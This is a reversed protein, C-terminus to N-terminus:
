ENMVQFVTCENDSHGYLMAGCKECSHEKNFKPDTCYYYKWWKVAASAEAKSSLLVKPHKGIKALDDAMSQAFLESTM